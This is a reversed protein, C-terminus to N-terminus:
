SEYFIGAELGVRLYEDLRVRLNTERQPQYLHHFAGMEGEDSAGSRIALETAAAVQAYAHHGYRLSTFQPVATTSTDDGPVSRHRRPVRAAAPVYSFRVCGEQRRVAIIPAAWTSAAELRALLISNSVLPLTVAHLKGIATVQELSLAGGAGSGDLAAYAVGDPACSDIISDTLRCSAGADARVGGIICYELTVEIDAIEIALSPQAPALPSGDANLSRGPVLTCHRLELRRLANGGGAPVRLRHGAILLGNIAIESDVGGTLSWEGTLIVTPRRGDAARVEVREGATANISIAEEYRGSDTIEVVGAGGLASIAAQITAHDDPVRLTATAAGFSHARGYEGGGLAAPFGYHYDVEVRTDGPLGAPLAIRGLVPDIAYLGAGPLHAWTAGDDALNCVRISAPAIAPLPDTSGVYLCVSRRVAGESYYETKREHLVRRGIPLPVHLPTALATIADETEPRTFLPQDHNLPSFRWRRDDVRAAPSGSLAHAGIRWLFIGINPIHHRGRGTAIRRVDITRPIRDFASGIRTLPEWRRLDPAAHIFPRPHNMYQTTILCQFFEVVHAPWGTVDRALQELVSATGKRRRYAITHAVEARRSVVAPAVGHLTRYGILDGIYPVAWEACTEIFADDYLQELDEEVLAIPESLVSLLEALPGHALGSASALELDRIRYLRPLLALLTDRDFSV